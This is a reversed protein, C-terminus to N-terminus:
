AAAAPLAHHLVQHFVEGLLVRLARIEFRRRLQYREPHPLPGEPPGHREEVHVVGHEEETPLEILVSILEPEAYGVVTTASLFIPERIRDINQISVRVPHSDPHARRAVTRHLVANPKHPTVRVNAHVKRHYFPQKSGLPIHSENKFNLVVSISSHSYNKILIQLIVNM